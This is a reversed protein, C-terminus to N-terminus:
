STSSILQGFWNFSRTCPPSISASVAFCWNNQCSAEVGTSGRAELSPAFSPSRPGLTSDGKKHEDHGDHGASPWCRCWRWTHMGAQTMQSAPLVFRLRNHEEAPSLLKSTKVPWVM